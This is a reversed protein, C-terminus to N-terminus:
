NGHEAFAAEALRAVLDTIQTDNMKSEAIVQPPVEIFSRRAFGPAVALKDHSPLLAM